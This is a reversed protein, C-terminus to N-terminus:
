AARNTRRLDLCALAVAGSLVSWQSYSEICFQKDRNEIYRNSYYAVMYKQDDEDIRDSLFAASEQCRESSLGERREQSRSFSRKRYKSM